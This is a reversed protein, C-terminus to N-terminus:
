EVEKEPNEEPIFEQILIALIVAHRTARTAAAELTAAFEKEDGGEISKAWALKAESYEKLQNLAFTAMYADEIIATKIPELDIEEEEAVGEISEFTFEVDISDFLGDCAELLPLAVEYIEIAVAEGATFPEVEIEAAPIIAALMLSCVVFIKIM